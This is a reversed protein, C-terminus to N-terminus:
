PELESHSAGEVVNPLGMDKNWTNVIPVSVWTYNWFWNVVVPLSPNVEKSYAVPPYCQNWRKLNAMIPMQWISLHFAASMLETTGHKQYICNFMIMNRLISAFSMGNIRLPLTHLTKQSKMCPWESRGDYGVNLQSLAHSCYRWHM